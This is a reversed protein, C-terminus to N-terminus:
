ASGRNWRRLYRVAPGLRCRNRGDIAPLSLDGCGPSFEENQREAPHKGDRLRIPRLGSSYHYHTTMLCFTQMKIGYRKVAQGVYDLFKERDRESSYINMGTNGRNLVHYFAAPFEIRLPRAM